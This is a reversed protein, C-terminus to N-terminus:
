LRLALSPSRSLPPSPEEKAIGTQGVRTISTARAVQQRGACTFRDAAHKKREMSLELKEVLSPFEIPDQAQHADLVLEVCCRTARISKGAVFCLEPINVSASRNRGAGLTAFQDPFYSNLCRNSV